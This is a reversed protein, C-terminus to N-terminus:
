SRINKATVANSQNEAALIKGIGILKEDLRSVKDRVQLFKTELAGLHENKLRDFASNSEEKIKQIEVAQHGDLAGLRTEIAEFRKQFANEVQSKLAAVLGSSENKSLELLLSFIQDFLNAAQKIQTEPM